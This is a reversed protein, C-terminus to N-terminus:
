PPSRYRQAASAREPCNRCRDWNALLGDALITQEGTYQLGSVLRVGNCFDGPNLETFAEVPLEPPVVAADHRAVQVTGPIIEVGFVSM